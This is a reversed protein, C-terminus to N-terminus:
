SISAGVTGMPGCCFKGVLAISRLDCMSSKTSYLFCMFLRSYMLMSANPYMCVARSRMLSADVDLINLSIMLGVRGSRLVLADLNTNSSHFPRLGVIM